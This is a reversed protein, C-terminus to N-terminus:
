PTRCPLTASRQTMTTTWNKLEERQHLQDATPRLPLLHLIRAPFGGDMGFAQTPAQLGELRRSVAEIITCILEWGAPVPQSAM